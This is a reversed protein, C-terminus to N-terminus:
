APEEIVTHVIIEEFHGADWNRAISLGVDTKINAFGSDSGPWYVLTMTGTVIVIQVWVIIMAVLM